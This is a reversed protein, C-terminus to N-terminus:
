GAIITVAWRGTARSVASRTSRSAPGPTSITASREMSGPGPRARGITGTRRTSRRRAAAPRSSRACRIIATRTPVATPGRRRSSSRGGGQKAKVSGSAEGRGFSSAEASASGTVGNRPKRRLVINIIGGTGEASYQASPNTIIEIREIDSGHLTRLYQSVDLVHLPRGDVMITVNGAGLLMVEDEPSITVAPLGRLLQLMDQQAAHPNQKVQYSRRDIRQVQDLRTGVVEIVDSQDDIPAPQVAAPPQSAFM